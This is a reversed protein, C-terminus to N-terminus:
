SFYGHLFWQGDDRRFLWCLQVGKRAIYYDRRVPTADWWGGEIREPGSLIEYHKMQIPKPCPLLLSPWQRNLYDTSQSHSLQLQSAVEPRPDAVTKLTKVQTEDLRAVLLSQLRDKDAATHRSGLIDKAYSKLAVFSKARLTLSIVPSILRTQDLRTSILALWDQQRYSGKVSAVSILSARGDRHELKILLKECALQRSYLYAELSPLIRRLPFILGRAQEADYSLHVTQQFREPLTFSTLKQNDQELKNLQNVLDYGFRYGLEKRPLESLQQYTHIGMGALKRCIGEPLNLQNISLQLLAQRHSNESESHLEIGAEALLKACAPTHGTSLTYSFGCQDLRKKLRQLYDQLGNFLPLMSSVELLLGQPEVPAIQAAQRYCILALQQLSQQETNADYDSIACDSLLCFATKKNMGTRVGLQEAQENCQMVKQAGPQLLLKPIPRTDAIFASELALLPFHIHLWLM